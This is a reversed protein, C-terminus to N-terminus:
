RRILNTLSSFSNQVDLSIGGFIEKIYNNLKTLAYIAAIALLNNNKNSVFYIVIILPILDQLLLLSLFCKFWNKCIWSTSSNILFLFAIPSVLIFFQVLIYRVSYSLLLGFLGTTSISQIIGDLSFLDFSSNGKSDGLQKVLSKFNVDFGSINSCIEKIASSVYYNIQLIESCIFYSFHIAIMFLIAKFIFQYPKEIHIENYNSYFLRFIYYLVFGLLLSDAVYILGQSDLMKKCFSSGIIDDNIFVINDLNSYINTDISSILNSFITNITDIITNVMNNSNNM